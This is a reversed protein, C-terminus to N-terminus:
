RRRRIMVVCGAAKVRKLLSAEPLGFHFSAVKPKVTEVVECMAADFPARNAATMPADPDLGLEKYFPSLLKGGHRM